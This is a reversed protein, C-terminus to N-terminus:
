QGTTWISSHLNNIHGLCTTIEISRKKFHHKSLYQVHIFHSIHKGIKCYTHMTHVYSMFEMVIIHTHMVVTYFSIGRKKAKGGVVLVTHPPVLHHHFLLHPIVDDISVILLLM